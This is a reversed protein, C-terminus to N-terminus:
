AGSKRRKEDQELADLADVWDEHRMPRAPRHQEWHVCRPRQAERLRGEAILEDIRRPVDAADNVWIPITGTPAADELRGLRRRMALSTV